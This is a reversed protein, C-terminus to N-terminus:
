VDQPIVQHIGELNSLAELNGIILNCTTSIGTAGSATPTDKLRQLLVPKNLHEDGFSAKLAAIAKDPGEPGGRSYAMVIDKVAQDPCLGAIQLIRQQPDKFLEYIERTDGLFVKWEQPQGHFDSFKSKPRQSLRVRQLKEEEEM